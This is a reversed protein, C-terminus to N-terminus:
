HRTRRAIERSLRDAFLRGRPLHGRASRSVGELLLVKIDQKPYSTKKMSAIGIPGHSASHWIKANAAAATSAFPAASARRRPRAEPAGMVSGRRASRAALQGPQAEGGIRVVQLVVAAVPRPAPRRRRQRDRQRRADFVHLGDHAPGVPSRTATTGEPPRVPRDPPATATSPSSTSLRSRIFRTSPKSAPRDCASRAARCRAPLRARRPARVHDSRDPPNRRARNTGSRRCCRWWHRRCGRSGSRCCADLPDRAQFHDRAGALQEVEIAPQDLVGAAVVQAM